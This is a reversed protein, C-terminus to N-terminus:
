FYYKQEKIINYDEVIIQPTINGMYENSVCRGVLNIVVCGSESFLKEFEEESSKFKICAVGNPLTIKLTPNKDRSMLKLSRATVAVNEIVVYPEFVAQGWIYDYNAIELIDKAYFSNNQYIFDVNYFPTFDMNELLTNTYGIFEEMNQHPILIGFANGHGQAFEVLDSKECLTRLDAIPSNNFNRGSGMWGNDIENLVLTPRQYKNALVTALLGTLGKNVEQEKKIRVILMKDALLNEEQIQTEITELYSDRLKNQRNKINTCVRSAQIVRPENEGQCGRKTSPILEEAKWDLMAEFVVMKEDLSGIRTVANVYPAVYFGINTPTIKDGLKYSNKNILENVFSNHINNLGKKVIQATEYNDLAMVDSIEACAALDYFDIAYNTGMLQDLYECFKLTVAAGCLTKNPYNGVQNNIVLSYDTPETVTHHDLVLVDVGSESLVKSAERDNSAADLMLVLSVNEPFDNLDIGHTKIPHHRYIFKEEILSPFAKHLYNLMIAMSAYGDFDSDIISYIKKDDHLHKILLEVGEKMNELLLPSFLDEDSTNLYHSVDEIGRNNLIQEIMSKNNDVKSILKYNM